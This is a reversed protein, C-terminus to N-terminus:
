ILIALLLVHFFFVLSSRYHEFVKQNYINRNLTKNTDVIKLYKISDIHLVLHLDNQIQLNNNNNNNNELYM